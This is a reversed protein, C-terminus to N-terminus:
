YKKRSQQTFFLHFLRHKKLKEPIKEFFSSSSNPINDSCNTKMNITLNQGLGKKFTQLASIKKTALSQNYWPNSYRKELALCTMIMDQQHWKKFNLTKKSATSTGTSKINKADITDDDGHIKKWTARWTLKKGCMRAFCVEWACAIIYPIQLIIKFPEISYIIITTTDMINTTHNHTHGHDHPNHLTSKDRHDHKCSDKDEHDHKCNDKHELYHADQFFESFASM